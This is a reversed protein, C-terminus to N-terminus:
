PGPHYQVTSAYPPRSSYGEGAELKSSANISSIMRKGRGRGGRRRRLRLLGAGRRRLVRAAARSVRGAAASGVCCLRRLKKAALASAAVASVAAADAVAWAAVASAAVASAAVAVAAASGSV